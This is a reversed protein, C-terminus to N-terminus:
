VNLTFCFIYVIFFANKGNNAATNTKIVIGYQLFFFVSLQPLSAVRATVVVGALPDVSNGAGPGVKGSITEMVETMGAEPTVISTFALGSPDAVVKKVSVFVLEVFSLLKVIVPAGGVTTHM